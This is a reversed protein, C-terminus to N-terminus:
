SPKGVLDAMAVQGVNRYWDDPNKPMLPLNKPPAYHHTVEFYGRLQNFSKKLKKKRWAWFMEAWLKETNPRVQVKKPKMMPGDVTVMAGSEMKVVRKSLDHQFNCFPCVSGRRRERECNPCRIPEPHNAPDDRMQQRHYDSAAHESLNWLRDWPRDVNPSGHQWYCNGIIAVKGNRRTILTKLRNAVCWVQEGPVVESEQIFLQQPAAPKGHFITTTSRQFNLWYNPSKSHRRTSINCKWGRRVALSQLRDAFLKNGTIIKYSGPDRDKVGDGLHIAHLLIDFQRCDLSELLPSLNKDLYERLRWWGRRPRSKSTGRPIVYKLSVSTQSFKSRVNEYVKYDFGCAELCAVLHAHQPQHVSQSISVAQRKGAKTGDTIWWGIFSIENDTLKSGCAPQWGCLPLKMRSKGILGDLRSLSYTNPWSYDASRQCWVLNHNGTVRVDLRRNKLCYMKEGPLLDRVHKHYVDEWAVAGTNVDFGAVRDGVGVGECRRWGHETLVETEMDLCGGHDTVIVGDPTEPSWRLVRGIMQIFSAVSGVPSAIIAQYTAPVDLGERLKFRSSLGKIDGDKYRQIIEDWIKRTLKRRVGDVVCDTADVHAWNVGVKNQFLDTFFVSEEVGPAFLMTPRADPNYKKWRDVVDAVIHQTYLKKLQGDLVYEGTVNRKVKRLDPQTISYFMAPVIAKCARYEAMTGSVVLNDVWDALGIPTATLGVIAAGRSKHDNIIQRMVKSKNLHLEDIVVLGADHPKWLPGLEGGTASERVRYVRAAETDAACIQIPAHQDFLDDWGAARVGFHLGEDAFRQVTQQLLLRRNLYFCGGLGLSQAWKLMEIAQVTKGSGTPGQLCVDKGAQVLALTQEIGRRQPAWLTPSLQFTM